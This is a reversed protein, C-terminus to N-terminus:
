KGEGQGKPKEKDEHAQGKQDPKGGPKEGKKPQGHDAPAGPGKPQPQPGGPGGKPAQAPQPAQKAQMQQPPQVPGSPGPQPAPRAEVQPAPRPPGAPAPQPAPQPASKSQIQPAAQPQAQGMQPREPAKREMRGQEERATGPPTQGPQGSVQAQGRPSVIGTRAQPPQGGAPGGTTDRGPQGTAAGQRAEFGKPGPQATGPLSGHGPQAPTIGEPRPAERGPQQTQAAGERQPPRPGGGPMGEARPAEGRPVIGAGPAAPGQPKGPQGPGPQGGRVGADRGAARVDVRQQPIVQSKPRNVDSAPVMYNTMKPQQVQAQQNVKGQPISKAERIAVAPNERRAERVLQQNREIRNVVTAHPKEAVAVNTYSYRQAANTTYNNVVTNNVVPAAHYNNIITTNNINTVQVNRYNNVGYFNKQNVVVAHRAYAYNRVGINIRGIAIDAVVVAHPGGWDHRCYYTERPALPVWGAYGDSHIWCVRGPYWAFGVELLPLGVRVVPPAWYWQNDVLVWNGYHHTLYGFPEAPIWTEDGYWESWRGATFPAWGYAVTTPRWFWYDRGEYFVREWRGNEELVYADSQLAPPLYGYSRGRERTKEVWFHDRDRNWADWDPDVGEGSTVQTQDALISPSGESVDYRANTGAHVFSVTGKVAVVEVSNEGVYFDFVSGPYSLVYGFPSDVKVVTDRGRNYLRVLGAAVDAETYDPELALYQIETASGLRAQSGNPAMLEARGQDGSYLTDGAAFPVDRIAAVWDSEEPVYRLLNGEVLTVRGVVVPQGEAALSPLALGAAVALFIILQVLRKTMQKEGGKENRRPKEEAAACQDDRARRLTYYPVHEERGDFSLAGDKSPMTFFVRNFRGIRAVAVEM